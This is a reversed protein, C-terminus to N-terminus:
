DPRAFGELGPGAPTQGEKSPDTASHHTLLNRAGGPQPALEKRLSHPSQPGPGAKKRNGSFQGRSGDSYIQLADLFHTLSIMERGPDRGVGRM